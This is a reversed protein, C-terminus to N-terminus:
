PKPHAAFFSWMTVDANIATSQPGLLQTLRRQLPPGGPWEHGEGAITYLEVTSGGRCGNYRTLTVTPDPHSDPATVVCSDQHAWDLAAQQVSYTWYAAGHGAYPDVPDATGHFSLIPVARTAPCPTPRRLGSVPAVAAFVSSDDCALQSTMRAGGSFGTSYVRTPNICYRHGLASVLQTLFTMDNAAGAPVPRNGVLSVGPINWDYGTGDPILAQPHAVIFDNTDATHDMATFLEQDAATSGSGHLNLVLPVKVSDRYGTPVHVIVTRTHGGSVLSATVSGTAATRGCGSGTFSSLNVGSGPSSPGSATGTHHGGCASLLLGIGVVGALWKTM